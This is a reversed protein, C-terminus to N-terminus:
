KRRKKDFYDWHEVFQNDSIRYLDVVHAKTNQQEDVSRLFVAAFDQDLVIRDVELHFYEESDFKAQFAAVLGARGQGVGPNHQQYDEAILDEAASLQQQNFFAEYFAAIAQKTIM